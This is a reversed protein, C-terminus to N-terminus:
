SQPKERLQFGEPLEVGATVAAVALTPLATAPAYIHVDEHARECSARIIYEAVRDTLHESRLEIVTVPKSDVQM